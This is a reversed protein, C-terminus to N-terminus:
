KYQICKYTSSNQVIKFCKPGDLIYQSWKLCNPVMKIKQLEKSENSRPLKSCFLFIQSLKPCNLIKKSIKFGKLVIQLCNFLLAGKSEELVLSQGKPGRSPTCLIRNNTAFYANKLCHFVM